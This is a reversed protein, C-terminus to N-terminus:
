RVFTTDSNRGGEGCGEYTTILHKARRDNGLRLDSYESLTQRSYGCAQVRPLATGLSSTSTFM